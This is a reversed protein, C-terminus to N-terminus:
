ESKNQRFNFVIEAVCEVKEDESKSTDTMCANCDSKLDDPAQSCTNDIGISAVRKKFEALTTAM